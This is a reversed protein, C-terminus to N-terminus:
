VALYVGAGKNVERDDSWFWRLFDYSRFSASHFQRQTQGKGKARRERETQQGKRKHGVSCGLILKFPPKVVIIPIVM